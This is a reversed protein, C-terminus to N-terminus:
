EGIMKLWHATRGQHTKGKMAQAQTLYNTKGLNKLKNKLYKRFHKKSDIKRIDFDIMLHSIKDYECSNLLDDIIDVEAGEANIKMIVYDDQSLNEQFWDSARVFQCMIDGFGEPKKRKGTYKEKFLTGGVHGAGYIMSDCNKDWLGFENVVLRKDHYKQRIINCNEIVPDFTYIIDFNYKAKIAEEVTEGHHGGIDLFIKM